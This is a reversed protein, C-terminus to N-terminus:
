PALFRPPKIHIKPEFARDSQALKGAANVDVPLHDSSIPSSLNSQGAWKALLWVVEIELLLVYGRRPIV